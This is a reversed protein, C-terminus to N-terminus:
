YNGMHLLDKKPKPVNSYCFQTTNPRNIQRDPCFKLINTHKM